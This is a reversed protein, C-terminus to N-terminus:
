VRIGICEMGTDLRSWALTSNPVIEIDLPFSMLSESCFLYDTLFLTTFSVPLDDLRFLPPPSGLHLVSTSVVSDYTAKPRFSASFCKALLGPPLTSHPTLIM